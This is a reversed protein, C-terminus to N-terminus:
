RVKTVSSVKCIAEREEALHLKITLFIILNDNSCQRTCGQQKKERSGVVKEFVKEMQETGLHCSIRCISVNIQDLFETHLREM